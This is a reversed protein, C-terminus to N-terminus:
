LDRQADNIDDDSCSSKNKDFTKKKYLIEAIYKEKEWVDQLYVYSLGGESLDKVPTFVDLNEKVCKGFLPKYEVVNETRGNKQNSTQLLKLSTEKLFRWPMCLNSNQRMNEQLVFQMCAVARKEKPIDKFIKCAINDATAFGIGRIKCLEYPNEKIITLSNEGLEKYIRKALKLDVNYESLFEYLDRLTKQEDWARKIPPIRKETIGNIETLRIPDNDLVDITGDIGFKNLIERSRVEKINPLTMLFHRFGDETKPIDQYFFDARFQKGYKKHTAFDGIFVFQQGETSAADRGFMGLTVTFNNYKSFDCNEKVKDELDVTYISSNANLDVALIAFGDPKQYIIKQLICPLELSM